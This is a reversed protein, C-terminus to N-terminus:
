AAPLSVRARDDAFGTDTATGDSTEARARQRGGIRSTCAFPALGRHDNRYTPKGRAHPSTVNLFAGRPTDVPRQGRNPPAATHAQGGPTTTRMALDHFDNGDIVDLTPDTLRGGGDIEGITGRGIAPWRQDPVEIRLCRRGVNQPAVCVDVSARLLQDAAIGIRGLEGYGRVMRIEIQQRRVQRIPAHVHMQVLALVRRRTQQLEHPRQLLTICRHNEVARRSHREYRLVDHM